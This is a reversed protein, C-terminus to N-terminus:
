MLIGIVREYELAAVAKVIKELMKDVADDVHATELEAALVDATDSDGQTCAVKLAALKERVWEANVSHKEKEVGALLGTAVLKDRFQTM